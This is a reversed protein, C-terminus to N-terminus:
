KYSSKYSQKKCGDLINQKLVVNDWIVQFNLDFNSEYYSCQRKGVLALADVLKLIVPFNLPCVSERSYNWPLGAGLKFFKTTKRRIETSFM